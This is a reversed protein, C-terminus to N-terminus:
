KRSLAEKARAITAEPYEFVRKLLAVIEDGSVPDIDARAKRADALLAPDTMTADFAATLARAREPPLGPPALFPRGLVERALILDLAQRDTDTRAFDRVDPVEALRPDSGGTKFLITVMGDRVWGPQNTTLGGWTIYGAGEVEGREMALSARTSGSYGSIVKFRTGILENFARPLLETDSGAGTGPVILERARLDDITKVPVTHWAVAAASERNMSGLWTVKLPEFAVHHVGLLTEFPISRSITGIVSGDKPAMSYLFETAKLGGAGPMNQPILTPAGPIHQGMHRALLRAYLDYTSGAESYIVVSMQRGKYFRELADDGHASRAVVAVLWTLALGVIYTPRHRVM